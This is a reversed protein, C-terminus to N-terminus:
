KIKKIITDIISKKPKPPLVRIFPKNSIASGSKLIEMPDNTKPPM